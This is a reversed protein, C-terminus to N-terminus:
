IDQTLLENIRELDETLDIGVNDRVFRKFAEGNRFASLLAQATQDRQSGALKM